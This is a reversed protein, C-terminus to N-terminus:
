RPVAKESETDREIEVSEPCDLKSVKGLLVTDLRTEVELVAADPGILPRLPWDLEEAREDM